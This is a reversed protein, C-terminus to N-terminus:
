FGAIVVSGAALSAGGQESQLVLEHTERKGPLGPVSRMVELMDKIGWGASHFSLALLGSGPQLLQAALALWAGIDRSFRWDKRNKGARGLSPPDAIILDYKRGRRVERATFAMADDVLWRIPATELGSLVANDRAALVSAKAADVHVIEGVAPLKAMRLTALGTYAFLNLVKLHAAPSNCANIRDELM